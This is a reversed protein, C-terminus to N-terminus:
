SERANSTSTDYEDCRTSLTAIVEVVNSLHINCCATLKSTSTDDCADDMRKRAPGRM